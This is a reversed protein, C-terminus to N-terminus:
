AFSIGGASYLRTASKPIHTKENENERTRSSKMRLNKTKNTYDQPQRQLHYPTAEHTHSLSQLVLLFRDSHIPRKECYSSEREREREGRM